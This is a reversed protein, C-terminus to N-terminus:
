HPQIFYKAHQCTVVLKLILSHVQNFQPNIHAPAPSSLPPPTGPSAASALSPAARPRCRGSPREARRGAWASRGGWGFQVGPRVRVECLLKTCGSAGQSLCRQWTSHRLKHWESHVTETRAPLICALSVTSTLLNASNCHPQPQKCSM